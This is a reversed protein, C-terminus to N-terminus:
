QGDIFDLHSFRYKYDIPYFNIKISKLLFNVMIRDMVLIMNFSEFDDFKLKRKLSENINRLYFNIFIMM